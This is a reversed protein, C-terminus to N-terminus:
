TNELLEIETVQNAFEELRAIEELETKQVQLFVDRDIHQVICNKVINRLADPPLSDLEVVNDGYESVFRKYNPDTKKGPDSPLNYSEIQEPALTIRNFTIYEGAYGYDRIRQELSNYISLGSPDFDGAYYLFYEKGEGQKESFRKYAEYIATRSVQGRVVMLNVDYAYTIESLVGRLADKETWVEIYDDQDHWRDKRYASKVIDMFDKLDIYSDPKDVERLRDAFADESLIGEDRGIVCLRSLKMYNSQKNKIKQRAVLQYYIQRLTLAFDYSEIIEKVQELLQLSKKQMMVGKQM